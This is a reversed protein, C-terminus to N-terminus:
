VYELVEDRVFHLRLVRPPHEDFHCHVAEQINRRIEPVSEAETFISCGLAKATYGGQQDEEVLFILEDM